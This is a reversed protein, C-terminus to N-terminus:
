TTPPSRSPTPSRKSCAAAALRELRKAVARPTAEGHYHGLAERVIAFDDLGLVVLSAVTGADSRQGLVSELARRNPLGTTEDHRALHVARDRQNRLSTRAM